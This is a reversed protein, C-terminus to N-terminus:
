RTFEQRLHVTDGAVPLSFFVLTALGSSAFIASRKGLENPKYWSRDTCCLDPVSISSRALFTTRGWSLPHNRWAQQVNDVLRGLSNANDAVLDKTTRN